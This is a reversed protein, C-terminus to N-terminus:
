RDRRRRYRAALKRLPGSREAGAALDAVVAAIETDMGPVIGLNGERELALVDFRCADFWRSAAYLSQARAESRGVEISLDGILALEAAVELALRRGAVEEAPTRPRFPLFDLGHSRCRAAFAGTDADGGHFLAEFSGGGRSEALRRRAGPSLRAVLPVVRRAGHAALATLGAEVRERDDTLGPLLPWLYLDRESAGDDKAEDSRASRRRPPRRAAPALEDWSRALVLHLLDWALTAEGAPTEIAERGAVRHEVLGIRSRECWARLESERSAEGPALPPVYIARPPTASRWAPGAPEREVGGLDRSRLDLWEVDDRGPLRVAAEAWLGSPEVLLRQLAVPPGPETM